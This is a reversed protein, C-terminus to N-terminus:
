GWGKEGLGGRGRGKEGHAPLLSYQDLSALFGEGRASPRTGPAPHRTGPARQAHDPTTATPTLTSVPESELRHRVQMALDPTPPYLRPGLDVLRQELESDSLASLPLRDTM